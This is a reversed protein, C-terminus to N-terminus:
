VIDCIPLQRMGTRFPPYYIGSGHFCFVYPQLCDSRPISQRIAMSSALFFISLSRRSTPGPIGPISVGYATRMEIYQWAEITLALYDGSWEDQPTLITIPTIIIVTM